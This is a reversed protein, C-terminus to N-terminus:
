TITFVNAGFNVTFSEGDQITVSAGRDWWSILPDLPSASTDNYHVIYRLPGFTGGSATWTVDVATLTGTGTAEVFANLIDSGGSPYGNEATIEALDTKISDASASPAVNSAYVRLLDANLEHVQLGLDGVFTEFKNYAVV